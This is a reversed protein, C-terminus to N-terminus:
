TSALFFEKKFSFMNASTVSLLFLCSLPPFPSSISYLSLYVVESDILRWSGNHLEVFIRGAGPDNCSASAVFQWYRNRRRDQGLPLSRYVYMEEAKHGIYSKMQARCREAAYASQQLALNDSGAAVNPTTLNKDSLLDSHLNYDNHAEHFPKQQIALNVMPDNTNEDLALMPSQRSDPASLITNSETKNPVFAAYPTKLLYEEKLRRKDLQAEAWM